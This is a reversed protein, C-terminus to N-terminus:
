RTVEAVEAEMASLVPQVFRTVSITDPAVEANFIVRVEAAHPRLPVRQGELWGLKSATTPHVEVTPEGALELVPPAYMSLPESGYFSVRNWIEIGPAFEQVLMPKAEEAAFAASPVRVLVGDSGATLSELAQNLQADVYMLDSYQAQAIADACGLTELADLLVEPATQSVPSPLSLGEFRQARGEYNLLTGTALYHPLVPIVIHALQTLPTELSDLAVVLECSKLAESWETGLVDDSLIDSELAVLGKIQGSRIGNLIKEPSQSKRMLGVAFSNASPLLFVLGPTSSGSKGVMRALQATARVLKCDRHIASCILLPRKANRLATGITAIEAAEATQGDASVLSSLKEIIGALSSPKCRIVQTAYADLKGARPSVVYVRANARIAQRVALDIMPAEATLDGGVILVVDAQEIESLTPTAFERSAITAVAERVAAHEADSAHFTIQNSGLAEVLLALAANAELSARGSGIAAIANKGYREGITKLREIATRLAKESEVAASEIRAQLIRGPSNVFEGGYRGLDCIFHPNVNRNPAPKIRRLTDHRGGPLVNCGVACHICVSRATRLDWPRSYVERFRKNTFVGTPCVDVLNGSFESELVGDRVRGFYVRDRSGFVGFDTGLAYDRYYRVCRYCTICRNMEHHILPGLYQNEWTRKPFRTRRHIHESLVTMDQLMCEGGEDCVPCDHPHNLMLYEIVGRRFDKAYPANVQVVMGEATRAMCAMELRAPKDAAPAIMVACLRCAGAPGLAEHYCFHPILIGLDLCVQLLNAGAPVEYEVGEITIRVKDAM